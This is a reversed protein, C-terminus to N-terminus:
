RRYSHTATSRCTWVNQRQYERELIEQQEEDSLDEWDVFRSPVTEEIEQRLDRYKSQKSKSPPLRAARLTAARHKGKRNV